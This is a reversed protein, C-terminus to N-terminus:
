NENLSDIYQDFDSRAALADKSELWSSIDLSETEAIEDDTM